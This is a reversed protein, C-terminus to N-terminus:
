CIFSHAIRLINLIGVAVIDSSGFVYDQRTENLVIDEVLLKGKTGGTVKMNFQLAGLDEVRKLNVTVTVTGGAVGAKQPATVKFSPGTEGEAYALGGSLCGVLAGATLIRLMNRM